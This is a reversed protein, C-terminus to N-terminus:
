DTICVDGGNELKELNKVSKNSYLVVSTMCLLVGAILILFGTGRGSGIGIVRGVTGALM